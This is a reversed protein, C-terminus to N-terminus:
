VRIISNAQARAPGVFVRLKTVDFM